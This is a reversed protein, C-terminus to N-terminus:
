FTANELYLEEQLRTFNPVIVCCSQITEIYQHMNHYIDFQKLSEHYHQYTKCVGQRGTRRTFSYFHIFYPNEAYYANPHQCNWMQTEDIVYIMKRYKTVNYVDANFVGQDWNDHSYRGFGIQQYWYELIEKLLTSQITPMIIVGTCLTTFPKQSVLTIAYDQISKNHNTTEFHKTIWQKFTRNMTRIYADSDVYVILDYQQSYHSLADYLVLIKCFQAQLHMLYTGNKFRWIACSFRANRSTYERNLTYYKYDYGHHISTYYYQLLASMTNWSKLSANQSADVLGATDLSIFLIRYGDDNATDTTQNANTFPFSVDNLQYTFLGLIQILCVALLMCAGLVLKWPKQKCM